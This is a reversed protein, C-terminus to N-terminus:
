KLLRQQMAQLATELTGIVILVPVALMLNTPLEFNEALNGQSDRWCADGADFVLPGYYAKIREIVTDAQKIHGVVPKGQAIAYGVEFATGSDVEPGRFPNLNAIVGDASDLLRINTRYIHEPELCPQDIPHLPAFGAALCTAKNAEALIAANPFFVEPGALYIKKM